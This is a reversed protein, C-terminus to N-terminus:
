LRRALRPHGLPEPRSERQRAKKIAADIDLKGGKAGPVLGAYVDTSISPAHGAWAAAEIPTAGAAYWLSIATHRLAYPNTPLGFEAAAVNYTRRRWNRYDHETWHEQRTNPVLLQKGRVGRYIMWEELERAIVPPVPVRRQRRKKSKAGEVLVGASNRKDVVLEYVTKKNGKEDRAQSQQLDNCTLALLEGPRIATYGIASVIMASQRDKARVLAARLAEVQDVSLIEESTVRRLVPLAPKPIRAVPNYPQPYDDLRLARDFVQQLDGM